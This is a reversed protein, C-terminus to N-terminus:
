AASAAILPRVLLLLLSPYLCVSLSLTVPPTGGVMGGGGWVKVPEEIKFKSQTNFGGSSGGNGGRKSEAKSLKNVTVELQLAGVGFWQLHGRVGRGCGSM